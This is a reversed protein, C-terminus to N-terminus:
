FSRIKGGGGDGDKDLSLKILQTGDMMTWYDNYLSRVMWGQGTIVAYVAYTYGGGGGGTWHHNYM